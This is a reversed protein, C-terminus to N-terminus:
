GLKTRKGNSTEASGRFFNELVGRPRRRLQEGAAMINPDEPSTVPAPKPAPKPLKPKSGGGFGM